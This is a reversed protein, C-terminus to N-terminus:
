LVETEGFGGSLCGCVRGSMCVCARKYLPAHTYRQTQGGLYMCVANQGTRMETHIENM